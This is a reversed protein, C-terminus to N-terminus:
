KEDETTAANEWSGYGDDCWILDSLRWCANGQRDYFDPATAAEIASQNTQSVTDTSACGYIATLMSFCVAIGIITVLFTRLKM